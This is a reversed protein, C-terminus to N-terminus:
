QASPDQLAQMGELAAVAAQEAKLNEQADEYADRDNEGENRITPLGPEETDAGQQERGSGMNATPAPVNNFAREFAANASRAATYGDHDTKNLYNGISSQATPSGSGVREASKYAKSKRARKNKATSSSSPEAFAPARPAGTEVELIPDIAMSENADAAGDVGQAPTPIEAPEAATDQFKKDLEEGSHNSEYHAILAMIQDNLEDRPDLLKQRAWAYKWDALTWKMISRQSLVSWPITAETEPGYDRIDIVMQYRDGPLMQNYHAKAERSTDAPKPRQKITHVRRKPKNQLERNQIAKWHQLCQLRSRAHGMKASVDNFNVQAEWDQDERFALQQDRAKQRAATKVDRICDHVAISLEQEEEETWHDTRRNDGCIVYNRWRDRCDEPMRGLREGILKWQNPHLQYFNRLEEDEQEDWNGRKTFNHFRRRIHRQMAKHDRNPLVLYLQQWFNRTIDDMKREKSQVLNNLIEQTVGYQARFGAAFRDIHQRELDTFPGDKPFNNDQPGNPAAGTVTSAGSAAKRKKNAQSAGSGRKRKSSTNATEQAPEEQADNPAEAAERLSEILAPDMTDDRGDPVNPNVPTYPLASSPMHTVGTTPPSMNSNLPQAQSQSNKNPRGRGRKGSSPTSNPPLQHSPPLDDDVKAAVLSSPPLQNDESAPADQASSPAGDADQALDQAKKNIRSKKPMDPDSDADATATPRQSSQSSGMTPAPRPSTTQEPICLGDDLILTEVYM